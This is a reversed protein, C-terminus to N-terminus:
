LSAMGAGRDRQREWCGAGAHKDKTEREHNWTCACISKGKYHLFVIHERVNPPIEGLLIPCHLALHSWPVKGWTAFACHNRTKWELSSIHYCRSTVLCHWATFLENFLPAFSQEWCPQFKWSRKGSSDSLHHFFHITEKIEKFFERQLYSPPLVGSSRFAIHYYHIPLNHGTQGLM